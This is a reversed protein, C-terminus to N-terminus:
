PLSCGASQPQRAAVERVGVPGPPRGAGPRRAAAGGQPPPGAQQAV